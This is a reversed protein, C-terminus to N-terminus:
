LKSLLYKDPVPPSSSSPLHSPPTTLLLVKDIAHVMADYEQKLEAYYNRFTVFKTMDDFEELLLLDYVEQLHGCLEAGRAESKL